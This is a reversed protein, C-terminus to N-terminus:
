NDNKEHQILRRRPRQRQVIRGGKARSIRFALIIVWGALVAAIVASVGAFWNGPLRALMLAILMTFAQLGMLTYAVRKNRREQAAYGIVSLIMLWIGAFVIMVMSVFAPAVCGADRIFCDQIFAIVNNLVILFLVVVLQIFTATGTQYHLRM